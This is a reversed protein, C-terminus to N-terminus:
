IVRFSYQWKEITILFILMKRRNRRQQKSSVRCSVLPRNVTVTWKNNLRLKTEAGCQSYNRQTKPSAYSGLSCAM